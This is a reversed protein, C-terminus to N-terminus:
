LGRCIAEQLAEECPAPCGFIKEWVDPKEMCLYVPVSCDAAAQIWATMRRYIEVRLPKVYRLKGDAGPVLEGLPLVSKPFRSHMITKLERTMRLCGLSIWAVSRAPVTRFLEAVLAAYDATWGPYEVIPDFHFAVRYGAAVSRAAASLRAGITATKLEDSRQIARPNLSWALVTKSRHDLGLLRDVQDTKTKLELVANTRSAFFDVLLAGYGTIADLSLSDAMQGTGVRFFRLPNSSFVRDLEALLADSNAYVILYPNTLYSQLFCYTCDMSCNTGINIVSYNCCVNQIGLRGRGGPCPEFFPGKQEALVLYRKARSTSLSFRTDRLLEALSRIPEVSVGPLSRLTNRTIASERVAEEVFITEPKYRKM